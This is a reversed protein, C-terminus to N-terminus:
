VIMEDLSAGAPVMPFVNETQPIPIRVLVPGPTNLAREIAQPLTRPDDATFAEVGMAHAIKVFDPCRTYLTNSFRKEYFLDQWQRVMGLCNNDFLLIKIPLNYRAYTDLEQINMMASGDGAICVVPVEPRAFHAGIASPIGFGMTGQGGSTLFHRPHISKHYLATWMQHQGVETTVTVEGQTVEDLADFIQWPYVEGTPANRRLPELADMRGLEDTWRSRASSDQGAAEKLLIKLVRKADGILWVSADINKHIEAEDLDIHIVRSDLAFDASRGTSRDSFRTGVAVIVDANLVARNAVANGHMGLMGISYPHNGPITGKGLLSTAVPIELTEVFQRLEDFAGSINIGNGAILVPRKANRILHAAEDLKSLDEPMEAKYGPFFTGKPRTYAGLGKQIDVPLDLLVPGPRGTSAIFLADRIMQPIDEPARAQMSHKVIPLSIGLIHAEQFFDTGIVSTSVQGTIALMPSSDHHATAIGTVLNTAGPGSTAVCVGVGGGARSFGDAAHAAAQEHRVLVHKIPSDYIADYLPIVTGGPLGFITHIGEDELSKMVIQAGTLEM